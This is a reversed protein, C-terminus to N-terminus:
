KSESPRNKIYESPQCGFYKKFCSAFYSPTNFGVMISIEAVTYKGEKLLQCAHNFRIKRIFDNASEGTLAKLKLHLNSRSMYMEGAFQETSFAADDLHKKVVQIAKELLKQDLSNLTIKEPEVEQSQTYRQRALYRTRFLNRIKTVVIPLAFPKPIYDDAGVQLGELQEKVDTKASLIIVPIHSTRLNQKVQKCLQLGNTGPMMVDTLILDIDENEKLIALAEDGNAAETIHFLQGLESALYHRIDANDEVVLIHEKHQSTSNTAPQDNDTKTDEHLENDTDLTYMIQANTTYQREESPANADAHEEPKYAQENTPLYISFTSGTGENSELEIRGHHLEVLRQVLSLGIGSGPHENDVQYFREFIKGQKDIPIGNGTDKVQLLLTNAEEQLTLDISKGEGTYKFANSLLNNTILELYNPDCLVKKDELDSHFNYAIKKQQAIREYFLFDKEIISRIAVPKVKLSFVGLEARRYDMLQNVLHLLRNTNRQMLQLQKRMWYDTVKGLMEQLPSIILTLPTRLEHSINIFFRLKMENVEKLREKDIREMEIQTQMTKRIWFFRFIFFTVGIFAIIFLLTAWWTKYWMPLVIIELETPTDNWKGDNNAAKVLFRYTGDPLNSYYATRRTNTYYWDKDYGDLKYAFTNHNGAVYNSVVFGLSFMTQHADLTISKTRSISQSLIGTNDGPVVTKHFLELQNIVVPPIYPNDILQNPAFITIGNVGGFYMKGDSALCAANSSFQNTQLGDDDTFNRFRETQPQFACLGKDTSIWLRGYKDELISQVVNNLLGDATTYQKIERNQENFRYLGSRTGIWFIGNAAETLCNIYIHNLSTNPPLIPCSKLFSDQETYTSLGKESIIWLRNKSDRQIDTVRQIRKNRNNTERVARNSKTSINFLYLDSMGSILFEGNTAPIFTYFNKLGNNYVTTIHGTNRSLISLGGTHTGIYVLDKNEDIYLSKVDNSELGEKKTYYTISKTRPNYRNVGGRNTGIWLEGNADERICNIINSNLQYPHSNTQLSQFRNKIPHYYYIGGYYTGLWMGGQTDIHIDRISLQSLDEDTADGNYTHFCDNADDYTCLSNLTGIWLRNKNDLALTRVYNSSISGNEQSTIYHTIKKNQPNYAFLGNGDTAIWLRTPSQQLVDCIEMGKLLNALIPIAKKQTISYDYIGANNTGIYIHNGQKSLSTPIIHAPITTPLTDSYQKTQTNFTLLRKDSICILLHTDDLEAINNIAQGEYTPNPYTEFRDMAADYLSLGNDTGIWIRKQKDTICTRVINNAISHPNNEDHHYVTFDYGNYKNLGNQTAFWMNGQDDQTIAFVTSQSLGDELGIHNFHIPTVEQASAAWTWIFSILFFLNVRAM